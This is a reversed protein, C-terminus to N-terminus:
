SKVTETSDDWTTRLRDPATKNLPERGHGAKRLEEGWKAPIEKVKQDTLKSTTPSGPKISDPSPKPLNATKENFSFSNM